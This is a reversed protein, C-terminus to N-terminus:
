LQSISVDLLKFRADAASLDSAVFYAAVLDVDRALLAPIRITGSLNSALSSFAAIAKLLLVSKGNRESAVFATRAPLDYGVSLDMEEYGAVPTQIHVVAQVATAFDPSFNLRGTAEYRHRSDDLTIMMTKEAPRVWNYSLSSSVNRLAEIVPLQITLVVEAARWGLEEEKQSNLLLENRYRWSGHNVVLRALTPQYEGTVGIKEVLSPCSFNFEVKRRQEDWNGDFDMVEWGSIASQLHLAVSRGTLAGSAEILPADGNREVVLRGTGDSLQVHARLNLREFGSLLPSHLQCEIQLGHLVASADVLSRGNTTLQCNVTFRNPTSSKYSAKATASEWGVLNSKFTVIAEIEGEKGVAVAWLTSVTLEARQENRSGELKFFTKLPLQDLQYSFKVAMKEYSEFPTEITLVVAADAVDTGVTLAYNHSPEERTLSLRASIPSRLDYAAALATSRWGEISSTARVRVDSSNRSLVAEANLEVTLTNKAAQVNISNAGQPGQLNWKVSGSLLEYGILPSELEFSAGNGSPEVMAALRFAAKKQNRELLLSARLQPQKQNLLLEYACNLNLVEFGTFPTNSRIVLRDHSWEVEARITHAVFVLTRANADLAM